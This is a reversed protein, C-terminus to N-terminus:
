AVTSQLLASNLIMIEQSCVACDDSCKAMTNGYRWCRRCQQPRPAHPRVTLQHGTLKVIAPLECVAFMIKFIKLDPKDTASRHVIYTDVTETPSSYLELNEKMRPALDSFRPTLGHNIDNPLEVIRVSCNLPLNRQDSM